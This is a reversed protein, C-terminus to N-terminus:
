RQQERTARSLMIQAVALVVFTIVFLVLGLALLSSQYLDSEAESFENALSAAITTGPALLSANIHHANGIVFTVAMTEGLARGLGLMVGGMLGRASYPMLVRRFVEWRTLGVGFAAERLMQPVSAIVQRGVAAIYPLIMIALILGATLMGVGFPPGEFLIGFGPISGLTSILFPEIHEAMFPALVFLGWMGYIISPVAALLEIATVLASRLTYPALESIFFVTGMALPVGILMAIFATILTGLIPARAGFQDTVPNWVERWLFSWGFHSLAPTSQVALLVIIGALMVVTLAVAAITLVRFSGEGLWSRKPNMEGPDAM